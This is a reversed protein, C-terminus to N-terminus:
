GFLRGKIDSVMRSVDQAFEEGKQLLGNASDILSSTFSLASLQAKLEGIKAEIQSIKDDYENTYIDEMIDYVSERIEDFEQGKAGDWLPLLTPETIRHIESMCIEQETIIEGKATELRDIKQQIAAMKASVDSAAGSLFGANDSMM